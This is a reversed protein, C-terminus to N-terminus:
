GSGDALEPGCGGTLKSGVETVKTPGRVPATSPCPPLAHALPSHVTIAPVLSKPLLQDAMAAGAAPAGLPDDPTLWILNRL